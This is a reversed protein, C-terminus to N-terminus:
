DYKAVAYTRDSLPARTTTDEITPGLEAFNFWVDNEENTSPSEQTLVAYAGATAGATAHQRITRSPRYDWGSKIQSMRKRIRSSQAGGPTNKKLLHCLSRFFNTMYRFRVRMARRYPTRRRRIAQYPVSFGGHEAGQVSHRFGRKRHFHDRANLAVFRSATISGGARENAADLRRDGGRSSRAKRCLM